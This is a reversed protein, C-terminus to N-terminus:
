LQEAKSKKWLSFIFQKEEAAEKALAATENLTEKRLPVSEGELYGKELAKELFFVDKLSDAENLTIERKKLKM